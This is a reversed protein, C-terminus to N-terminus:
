LLRQRRCYEKEDTEVEDNQRRVEEDGAIGDGDATEHKSRYRRKDDALSYDSGVRHGEELDEVPGREDLRDQELRGDVPNRRDNRAQGFAEHMKRDNVPIPRTIKRGIQDRVEGPLTEGCNRKPYKHEKQDVDRHRLETMEEARRFHSPKEEGISWGFQLQVPALASPFQHAQVPERVFMIQGLKAIGIAGRM